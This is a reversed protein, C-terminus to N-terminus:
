EVALGIDGIAFEYVVRRNYQKYRDCLKSARREVMAATYPRWGINQMQARVFQLALLVFSIEGLPPEMWGWTWTGIEWITELDEPPPVKCFICGLGVSVRGGCDGAAVFWCDTPRM